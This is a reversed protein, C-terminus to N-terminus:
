RIELSQIFRLLHYDAINGSTVEWFLEALKTADRYLKSVREGEIEPFQQQDFKMQYITLFLLIAHGTYVGYSKATASIENNMLREASELAINWDDIAEGLQHWTLTDGYLATEPRVSFKFGTDHILTTVATAYKLRAAEDKQMLLYQFKTLFEESFSVHEQVSALLKKKFLWKLVM